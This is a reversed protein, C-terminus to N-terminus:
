FDDWEDEDNENTNFATEEREREREAELLIKLAQQREHLFKPLELEHVQGLPCIENLMAIIRPDIRLEDDVITHGLEPQRARPQRPFEEVDAEPFRSLVM